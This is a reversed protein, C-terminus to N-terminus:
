STRNIVLVTAPVNKWSEQKPLTATSSNIRQESVDVSGSMMMNHNLALIQKLRRVFPPPVPPRINKQIGNYYFYDFLTFKASLRACVSNLSCSGLLVHGVSGNTQNFQARTIKGSPLARSDNASPINLTNSNNNPINSSTYSMDKASATPLLSIQDTLVISLIFALSILTLLLV